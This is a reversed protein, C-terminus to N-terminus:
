ADRVEGGDTGGLAERIRRAADRRADARFSLSTHTRPSREADVGALLTADAAAERELDDALREVREVAEAAAEAREIAALLVRM